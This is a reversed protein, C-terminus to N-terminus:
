LFGCQLVDPQETAYGSSRLLLPKGMDLHPETFAYEPLPEM